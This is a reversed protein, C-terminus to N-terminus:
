RAGIRRARYDGSERRGEAVETTFEEEEEERRQTLSEKKRV